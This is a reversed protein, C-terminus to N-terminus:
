KADVWEASMPLSTGERYFDLFKVYKKPVRPTLLIGDRDVETWIYQEYFWYSVDHNVKKRADEESLNDAEKLFNVYDTVVKEYPLFWVRDCPSRIIWGKENPIPKLKM